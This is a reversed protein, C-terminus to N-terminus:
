GTYAYESKGNKAELCDKIVSLLEDKKFPKTIYNNCGAEVAKDIDNKESYGSQVIIPIEQDIKRIRSTAEIGDMEPMSIDTIILSVEPTNTFMEVAEKGNLARIVKFNSLKLVIDLLRFSIDNDEAVLILDKNEHNTINLGKNM